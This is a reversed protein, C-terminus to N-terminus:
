KFRKKCTRYIIEGVDDRLVIFLGTGIYVIFSPIMVAYVYMMNGTGLAVYSLLHGIIEEVQNIEANLGSALVALKVLGFLLRYIIQDEALDKVEKKYGYIEKCRNIKKLIWSFFKM